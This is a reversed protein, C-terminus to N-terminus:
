RLVERLLRLDDDSLAVRPPPAWADDSGESPMSPSLLGRGHVTPHCDSADGARECLHGVWGSRETRAHLLEHVVVWQLRELGHVCAYDIAIEGRGRLLAGVPEAGSQCRGQSDYPRVVVDADAESALEWRDGTAALAPLVAAIAARHEPRWATWDTGDAIAVRITPTPTPARMTAVLALVGASLAAAIPGASSRSSDDPPM